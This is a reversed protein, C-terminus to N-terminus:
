LASRSADMELNFQVGDLIRDVISPKGCSPPCDHKTLLNSQHTKKEESLWAKYNSVLVLLAFAETTNSGIREDEKSLCEKWRSEGVDRCGRPFEHLLHLPGQPREM